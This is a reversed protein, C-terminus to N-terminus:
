SLKHIQLFKLPIQNPILPKTAMLMYSQLQIVEWLKGIYHIFSLLPKTKNSSLPLLKTYFFGIPSVLLCSHPRQPVHLLLHTGSLLHPFATEPPITTVSVRLKM